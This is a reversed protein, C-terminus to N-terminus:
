LRPTPAMAPSTDFHKCRFRTTWVRRRQVASHAGRLGAWAQGAERGRWAVPRMNSAERVVHKQVEVPFVLPVSEVIRRRRHSVGHDDWWSQKKLPTKCTCVHQILWANGDEAPSFLSRTVSYNLWAMESCMHTRVVRPATPPYTAQHFLGECKERGTMQGGRMTIVGDRGNGARM